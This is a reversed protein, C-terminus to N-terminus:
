NINMLYDSLNKETPLNLKKRLRYRRIEVGRTSINLLSAIEKSSMNLRLYACLKLDNPLLDPFQHKLKKFFNQHTENFSHEFLNWDRNDEYANELIKLVKKLLEPKLKNGKEDNIQLIEANLSNLLENKHLINMTANTLEKNKNFLELELQQNKIEVLEQQNRIAEQKLLEQQQRQYDIKLKEEHKILKQHYWSRIYKLAILVLLGYCLYAYWTRYWPPLIKIEIVSDKTIYGNPLKARVIFSFTGVPLNLFETYPMTSWESWESNMNSLRYQYQVASETYYPLAYSIRISNFKYNVETLEKAINFSTSDSSYISQVGRILPKPVAAPQFNENQLNLLSFGNDMSVLFHNPSLATINEYYKMMNGELSALKISDVRIEGGPLLKVLAVRTKNIFWYRGNGAESIKNSKAFSGLKANLQVYPSFKDIVEDYLYIGSDTTFVNNGALKYVGIFSSQPLGKRGSYEESKSISEFDKSFQILNLKNYGSAWVQQEGQSEILQVGYKFNQYQKTFSIANLNTQFLSIGTYNGQLAIPSQPSVQKIAWGGTQWSLPVLRTGDVKYTGTNHGCILQNNILELNWVQGQSEPILKFDLSQYQKNQIWPAYFLGQNTGLYLNGQYIKATYITGLKGSRDTYYYLASNIAIRDIGNDLGAWINSQKDINLSLVTNNQLGLSKNVHQVLNGQEDLIFIGDLITGYVFYHNLLKIGNNIQATKLKENISNNWPSIQGNRDMRYLGHKATAVLFNQQDLPLISLINKGKLIEKDRIPVLKNDIIEHLGSPITEIFLRKNAQFAFLFPEGAGDITEIKNNKYCYITKFSQFLIRDEQIIIKWIEDNLNKSYSSSISQYVLKGFVNKEWYGFESQGATYIRGKGDIQVVRVMGKNPHKYLNWFAGDYVLLGESNAAYILGDKDTTMGWNQNEAKYLNKSFQQIWPSGIHQIDNARIETTYQTTLLVFLFSSKLLFKM